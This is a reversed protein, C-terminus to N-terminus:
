LKPCCFIQGLGFRGTRRTKLAQSATSQINKSQLNWNAGFSCLQLYIVNARSKDARVLPVQVTSLQLLAHLTPSSTGTGFRRTCCMARCPLSCSRDWVFLHEDSSLDSGSYPFGGEGCEAVQLFVAYRLPHNPKFLAPHGVSATQRQTQAGSSHTYSNPTSLQQLQLQLHTPM